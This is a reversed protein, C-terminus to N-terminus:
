FNLRTWVTFTADPVLGAFSVPAQGPLALSLDDASPRLEGGDGWVSLPLQAAATVEVPGPPTWSVSPVALATGDDFNQIWLASASLEPVVGVGVSVLGYNRGRFTSAFPDAPEATGFLEPDECVLGTAGTDFPTAVADDGGGGNRYYQASVVLSELVPFSYDIGVAVEEYLESRVHLAAEVWYGVGATGKIDLGVLGAEDVPLWSGSAAIDAGLVNVSARGALRPETFADNTAVIAQVQRLDGLPITVRAANVGARERWPETLLVEPFPDTPNVMVASGWHLAQRGIRVDAFPLYADVYLREVRLYDDAVSIGLLENAPELWTCGAADLLPTLGAEDFTRRLEDSTRRGQAFGLEVTSSLLLREGLRASLEPRLREVAAVPVGDVGVFAQARVESYGAIEAAHARSGLALGAVGLLRVIPFM